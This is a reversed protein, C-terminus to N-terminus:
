NNISSVYECSSHVPQAFVYAIGVIANEPLIVIGLFGYRMVLTQLGNAM